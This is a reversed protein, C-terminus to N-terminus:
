DTSNLFEEQTPNICDNSRKSRVLSVAEQTDLGLEKLLIAAVTGARGLGGKCHVVIKEGTQIASILDSKVLKFAKMWEPSPATTDPFPLHIWELNHALVREGLRSVRLIEMERDQVLTVVKSAGAGNIASIDADLDRNWGGSWSVPQYKGPCITIGIEGEFSEHCIWSIILPHSESTRLDFQIPWSKRM